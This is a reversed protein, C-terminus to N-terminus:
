ETRGFGLLSMIVAAALVILSVALLGIANWSTNQVSTYTTNATATWTSGPVISAQVNVIVLIVIFLAIIASAAAMIAQTIVGKRAVIELNSM